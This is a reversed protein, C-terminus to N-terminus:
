PSQMNTSYRYVQKLNIERRMCQRNAVIAAMEM